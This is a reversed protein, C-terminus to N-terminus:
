LGLREIAALVDEPYARDQIRRAIHRWVIRGDSTVLLQAPVAIDGGRPHGDHHLLDYSAVVEHTADSLITFGLEDEAAVRANEAISDVSIALM